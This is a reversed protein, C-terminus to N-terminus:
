CSIDCLRNSVLVYLSLCPFTKYRFTFLMVLAWMFFSVFTLQKGGNILSPILARLRNPDPGSVRVQIRGGYGPGLLFKRGYVEVNPFNSLIHREIEPILATIKTYDDVDILFQMYAANDKEPSYTVLIRMSGAGILTNVHTTAELGQLYREIEAAQKRTDEIHTGQPLWVDLM